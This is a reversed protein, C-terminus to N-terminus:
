EENKFYKVPVGKSIYEAQLRKVIRPNKQILELVKSKEVKTVVSIDDLPRGTVAQRLIEIKKEETM